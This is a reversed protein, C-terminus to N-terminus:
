QNNRFNWVHDNKKLNELFVIYSLVLGIVFYSLRVDEMFGSVLDLLFLLLAANKLIGLNLVEIQGSKEKYIVKFIQFILILFVVGGVVGTEMIVEMFLNHPALRDDSGTDVIGFGGLGIGFIPNELFLTGARQLLFLRTQSSVDEGFNNGIFVRSKLKELILDSYLYIPIVIIGLIFVLRKFNVKKQKFYRILIILALFLIAGKSSLMLLFIISLNNLISSFLDKKNWHFAIFLALITSVVQYSPIKKDSDEFEYLISYLNDDFFNYILILLLIIHLFYMIKSLSIFDEKKTLLFFPALFIVINLVVKTAKEIYYHESPSYACSLIYFIHFLFFPFFIKKFVMLRSYKFGFTYLFTFLITLVGLFITWDFFFPIWKIAGSISFLILIIIIVKKFM